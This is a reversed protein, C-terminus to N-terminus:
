AVYYMKILGKGKAEIEGRFRCQFQDKVLKYTSESINIKGTEGSSEMRSATNVTDGWIDYQFKKIGVIGAVVPGTHIGVRIEFFPLGAEIKRQKGAAIFEIIEKAAQIVDAAHTKNPTPIGGAAMYADGITKIKEVGYKSMIKDFESFCVNLDNVLEKPSMSEAMATFGKFDTFLVTVQEILRAESEGTSKLEQATEYPLINLLLNESKDREKKISNRQTFFVIALLMMLFLGGVSANRQLKKKEIEAASVANQKEQEVKLLAEKKEYEYQFQQQMLASKNEDKLIESNMQIFLEHMKLAERFDSQSKYVKFLFGAAEKVQRIIGLEESIQLGQKLLKIAKQNDKLEYYNYGLQIYNNAQISKSQILNAWEISKEYYENGLALEGLSSHAMGLNQCIVAKQQIDELNENKTLALNYYSIAKRFDKKGSYVSAINIYANIEGTQDALQVYMKLARQYYVLAKDYDLTYSYLNGINNLSSAVSKQDNLKESLKLRFMLNKISEIYNGQEAFIMALNSYSNAMGKLDNVEQKIRLSEEHQSIAQIFDGKYFFCLGKTTLASAMYKKNEISKAFNYQMDALIIASDPNVSGYGQWALNKLAELRVTDHLNENEWIGKLSDKNVQAKGQMCFCAATILIILALKRKM